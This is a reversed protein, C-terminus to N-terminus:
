FIIIIYNEYNKQINLILKLFVDKSRNCTYKNLYFEKTDIWKFGSTQLFKSIAYGYLNNLDLYIHKSEQRPAYSKLWKNNAKRYRNSICFVGSRTGKEFFIYM